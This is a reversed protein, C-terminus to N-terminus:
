VSPSLIIKPPLLINFTKKPLADVILDFNIQEINNFEKCFLGIDKLTKLLLGKQMNENTKIRLLRVLHYSCYVAMQELNIETKQEIRIKAIQFLLELDKEHFRDFKLISSKEGDVLKINYKIWIM